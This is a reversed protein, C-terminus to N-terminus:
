SAPDGAATIARVKAGRNDHGWGIRNPVLQYPAYRKYGNVTPTTLLCSASAHELLGALWHGAFESMRGDEPEFLNAGSRTDIVSQHIHWGNAAAHPLNPKAMFSAHLGRSHCIEKVMTRFNVALEAITMPDASAFTFDFQSPGMEIEVSWVPIAMAQATRRLLDLM